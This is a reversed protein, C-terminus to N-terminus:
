LRFLFSICSLRLVRSRERRVRTLLAAQDTGTTATATAVGSAAADCVGGGAVKQAVPAVTLTTLPLTVLKVTSPLSASPLRASSGAPVLTM